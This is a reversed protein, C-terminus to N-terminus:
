ISETLHNFISYAARRCEYYADLLSYYPCPDELQRTAAPRFDRSPDTVCCVYRYRPQISVLEPCGITALGRVVLYWRGPRLGLPLVDLLNWPHNSPVQVICWLRGDGLRHIVCFIGTRRDVYEVQDPEYDWPGSPWDDRDRLGYVARSDPPFPPPLM